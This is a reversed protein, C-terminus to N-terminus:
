RDGLQLRKYFRRTHVSWSISSGMSTGDQDPFQGNRGEARFMEDQYTAPWEAAEHGLLRQITPLLGCVYFTCQQEQSLFPSPQDQNYLGPILARIMNHTGWKAVCLNPVKRIPAEFEGQQYAYSLDM